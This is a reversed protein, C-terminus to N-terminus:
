DDNSEGEARPMESLKQFIRMFMKTKPDLNQQYGCNPCIENEGTTNQNVSGCKPCFWTFTIM